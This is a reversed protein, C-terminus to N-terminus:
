FYFYPFHLSHLCIAIFIYKDPTFLSGCRVTHVQCTVTPLVSLHTVFFSNPRMHVDTLSSLSSINYRKASISEESFHLSDAIRKPAEWPPYIPVALMADPLGGAEGNAPQRGIPRRQSPPLLWRVGAITYPFRRLRAGCPHRYHRCFRPSITDYRDDRSIM